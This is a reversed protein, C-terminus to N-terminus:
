AAGKQEALIKDLARLESELRLETEDRQVWEFRLYGEHESDKVPIRRKMITLSKFRVLPDDLKLGVIVPVNKPLLIPRGDVVRKDVAEGDQNFLECQWRGRDPETFNSRRLFSISGDQRWRCESWRAYLTLPNRSEVTYEEGPELRVLVGNSEFVDLVRRTDNILRTAYVKEPM